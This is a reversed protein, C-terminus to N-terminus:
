IRKCVDIHQRVLFLSLSDLGERVPGGNRLEVHLPVKDTAAVNHLLQMGRARQALNKGLRERIGAARGCGASSPANASHRAERTMWEALLRCSAEVPPTGPENSFPTCAAM